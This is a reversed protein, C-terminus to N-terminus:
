RRPRIGADKLIQRALGHGVEKSPHNAVTIVVGTHPHRLQYHSGSGTRHFRFGARKLHRILEAWTM